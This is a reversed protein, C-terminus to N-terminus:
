RNMFYFVAFAAVVLFFCLVIGGIALPFINAGREEEIVSSTQPAPFPKSVDPQKQQMQVGNVQSIVASAAGNVLGMKSMMDFASRVKARMDEPLDDMTNYSTGNVNFSGSYATVVNQAVDGELFDPIGNGNKDVFIQSMQEFAQREDAPMDELSNYTKGNFIITPM